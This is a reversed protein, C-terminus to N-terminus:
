FAQFQHKASDILTHLKIQAHHPGFNSASGPDPVKIDGPSLKGRWALSSKETKGSKALRRSVNQLNKALDRGA